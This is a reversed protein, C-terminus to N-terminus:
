GEDGVVALAHELGAVDHHLDSAPVGPGVGILSALHGEDHHACLEILSAAMLSVFGTRRMRTASSPSCEFTTASPGEGSTRVSGARGPNEQARIQTVSRVGM